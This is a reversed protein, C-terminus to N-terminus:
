AVARRACFLSISMDRQMEGKNPSRIGALVIEDSAQLDIHLILENARHPRGSELYKSAELLETKAEQVGLESLVSFAASHFRGQQTAERAMTLLREKCSDSDLEQIFQWHVGGPSVSVLRLLAEQRAEIPAKSERIAALYEYPGNRAYLGHVSIEALLM